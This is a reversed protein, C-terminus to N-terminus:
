RRAHRDEDVPTGVVGLDRRLERREAHLPEVDDDRAMRVGVVDHAQRRDQRPERHRQQELRPAGVVRRVRRRKPSATSASPTGTRCGRAPSTRGDAVHPDLDQRGVAAPRPGLGVRVVVRDDEARDIPSSETRNAVSGSSGACCTRSSAPTSRAASTRFTGCWPAAVDSSANKSRPRGTPRRRSRRRRVRIAVGHGLDEVPDGLSRRRPAGSRDLVAVDDDREPPPPARPRSEYVGAAHGADSPSTVGPHRGLTSVQETPRPGTGGGRPPARSGRRDDPRALDVAGLPLPALGGVERRRRQEALAAGQEDRVRLGQGVVATARAGRVELRGVRVRREDQERHDPLPRLRRAASVFSTSPTPETTSTFTCRLSRGPQRPELARSDFSSFRAGSPARREDVREALIRGRELLRELLERRANGPSRM